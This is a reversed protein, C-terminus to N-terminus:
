IENVEEPNPYSFTSVEAQAWLGPQTVREESRPAYGRGPESPLLQLPSLSAMAHSGEAPKGTVGRIHL